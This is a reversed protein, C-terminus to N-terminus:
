MIKYFVIFPRGKSREAGPFVRYVLSVWYSGSELEQVMWTFARQFRETFHVSSYCLFEFELSVMATHWELM